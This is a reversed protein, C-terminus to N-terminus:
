NSKKSIMTVVRRGEYMEMEWISRPPEEIVKYRYRFVGSEGIESWPLNSLDSKISSILKSGSETDEEHGFTSIVSFDAGVYMEEELYVLGRTIYRFTCNIRNVAVDLGTQLITEGEANQTETNNASGQIMSAFGAKEPKGLSRVVKEKMKQAVQHDKSAKLVAFVLRFYEDDDSKENNCAKCCPIVANHSHMYLGQPVVHEDTIQKVEGCYVCKGKKM